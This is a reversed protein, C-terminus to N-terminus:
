FYLISGTWFRNHETLRHGNQSVQGIFKTPLLVQQILFSKKFCKCLIIFLSWSHMQVPNYILILFAYASFYLTLHWHTTGSFIWVGGWLLSQFNRPPPSNEFAWFNSHIYSAQSSNGSLNPPRLLFGKWLPPIHIIKSGCLLTNLTIWPMVGTYIHNTNIPSAGSVFKSFAKASMTTSATMSMLALILFHRNSVSAASLTFMRIFTNVKSNLNSARIEMWLRQHQHPSNAWWDALSHELSCQLSGLVRFRYFRPHGAYSKTFSPLNETAWSSLNPVLPWRARSSCM